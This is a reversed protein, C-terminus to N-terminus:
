LNIVLDILSYIKFSSLICYSTLESLGSTSGASNAAISAFFTAM